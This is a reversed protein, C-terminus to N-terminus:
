PKLFYPIILSAIVIAFVIFFWKIAQMEKGHNRCLLAILVNLLSLCFLIALTIYIAEM